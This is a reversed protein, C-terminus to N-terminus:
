LVRFPSFIALGPGKSASFSAIRSTIEFIMGEGLYVWVLYLFLHPSVERPYVVFVLVLGLLLREPVDHLLDRLLDMVVLPLCDVLLDIPLLEFFFVAESSGVSGVITDVRNFSGNAM